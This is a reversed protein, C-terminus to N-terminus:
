VPVTIVDMIWAGDMESLFDKHEYWELFFQLLHAEVPKTFSLVGIWKCLVDIPDDTNNISQILANKISIVAAREVETWLSIQDTMHVFTEDYVIRMCIPKAYKRIKRNFVVKYGKSDCLKLIQKEWYGTKHDINVNATIERLDYNPREHVIDKRCRPCKVPTEVPRGDEDVQMAYDKLTSYCTSCIGHGCPQLTIPKVKDCYNKRCIPCLPTITITDTTDSMESLDSFEGSSLLSDTM